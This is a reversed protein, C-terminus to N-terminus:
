LGPDGGGVFHVIELKDNEYLTTEGWHQRPVVIRNVEIALRDHPLNLFQVLSSLTIETPLEKEEGNIQM